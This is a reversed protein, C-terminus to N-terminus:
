LEIEEWENFTGCEQCVEECIDKKHDYDKGCNKCRYIVSNRKGSQNPKSIIENDQQASIDGRKVSLQTEFHLQSLFPERGLFVLENNNLIQQPNEKCNIKSTGIFTGNFSDLDTVRYQNDILEIACHNRSIQPIESLIGSGFGERGLIVKTQDIHIKEGTTQYILTIGTCSQPGAKDIRNETTGAPQESIKRPELQDLFSNCNPCTEPKQSIEEFIIEKDCYDCIINYMM